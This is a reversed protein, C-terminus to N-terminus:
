RSTPSLPDCAPQPNLKELPRLNPSEVLLGRSTLGRLWFELSIAKMMRIIHVRKGVSAEQLTRLFVPENIYGFRSSLSADFTRQLETWNKEILALPTRAALQKTRRELIDQPVIGRLSRRMLSRREGPRLLQGAPLSLVFEVLDQDLFPYRVEEVAPSSPACNALQNRLRLLGALYYRQTPLHTAIRERVELVQRRWCTRTAFEPQIWPEVNAAEVLYQRLFTPLLEIGAQWLLQIAPRRKVLIWALLQKALQRFRGRVLLDGLKPSPDPIAGMLEDGGRGSLTVRYGGARVINSRETELKQSTGLSGPLASFDLRVFSDNTHHLRSADIHVGARGRAEEVKRFYLWDDGNPETTDYYSLTDLRPVCVEGDLLLKDAMCVISSSDLGGSLEALVPSETRLRRRVAQGFVQRFHEEYEADSKYRLLSRQGTGWYCEVRSIGQRFRVFHGGPVQHIEQFPTVHAEPDNALYGCVYHDDLRFRDPSLLLLPALHTSWWVSGARLFYYLHRCSVYDVALTLERIEPQWIALAWDGVSNPGTLDKQFKSFTASQAISVATFLLVAAFRVALTKNRFM